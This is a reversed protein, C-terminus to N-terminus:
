YINRLEQAINLSYDGIREFHKLLDIYLLETKVDAGDQIRRRATKVTDHRFSYIDQELEYARRLDSKSLHQNLHDKNFVIFKLVLESYAKIEKYADEHFNMKKDYKSKCVLMMNYCSDGVSELENLIRIMASINESSKESINEKSCTALYHSIEVQMVDTLDELEKAEQISDGMKKDSNNFVDFFKNFMTETIQAMKAIESQANLINMEATNQFGTSLYDLKYIGGEENKKDPVLRTAIRALHPVFFIFVTTNTINFLTHFMSLHLPVNSAETLSGPVISDVLKIFFPLAIIMWVVGMLNFITHVRAARKANVKAGITAINATITTGINEGLVMAAAADFGIWGKYAMTITVAMTASSSQMIVTLVTGVLVFILISLLGNNAYNSLFQLIEPNDKVSPVSDKLFNLGIFLLGFGILVEGVDRRKTIKSFLFPFGIGMMPLAIHSMKFKFGIISVIWATITTGINAGMIVGISQVLNMLGANVFSVVMVTTASSSQILCTIMFGTGVAMFRNKTMFGVFDHLKDGAVRQLASSMVKMGYLFLALSGLLEFITGVM